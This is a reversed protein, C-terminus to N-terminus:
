GIRKELERLRFVANSIISSLAAHEAAQIYEEVAILTMPASDAPRLDPLPLVAKAEAFSAFETESMHDTEVPARAGNLYDILGAKDTPVEVPEWFGGIERAGRKAEDQTGVWQVPESRSQGSIRYLKM